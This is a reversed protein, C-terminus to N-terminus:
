NAWKRFIDMVEKKGEQIKYFLMDLIGKYIKCRYSKNMKAFIDNQEIYNYVPCVGCYPNYPCDSCSPLTELCSSVCISKTTPNNILSEYDDIYVNGLKFADNGTEALMRAEDCSYVNGDYNYALQGISGGCPSRLEMYNIPEDTLIKKLFLSAHSEIIDIGNCSLEIIYDLCEEYFLCFEEPTYGIDTWNKTCFGIPTLPRIFISNFGLKIYQNIIEKPYELSKRTTTQIAQARCSLGRKMYINNIKEINGLTRHLTPNGKSIRNYDHVEKPGDLSTCISVNNDIFYDIM